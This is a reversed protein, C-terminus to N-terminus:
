LKPLALTVFGLSAHAGQQSDGSQEADGPAQDEERKPVQGSRAEVEEADQVRQLTQM